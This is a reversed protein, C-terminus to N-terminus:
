SKKRKLGWLTVKTLAELVIALTMKSEGERREVFTIPVEGVVGSRYAKYALEVQFSYGTSAVNALSLKKLFSAKFVRFGATMDKISTGLMKRAYFNGIRSILIRPLPWNVVSGGSVWRSGIVLDFDKAAALLEKLDEGRHSGDADMEIIYEYDRQLAWNFGALYAPGLGEKTKRLLTHVRSDKLGISQALQFTGDPSSDDVVLIEVEQNHQFVDDITAQLSAIENYTPM